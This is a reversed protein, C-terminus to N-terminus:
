IPSLSPFINPVEVPPTLYTNINSEQALTGTATGKTQNYIEHAIHDKVINQNLLEPNGGNAQWVNEIYGKIIKAKALLSSDIHLLNAVLNDIITINTINRNKHKTCHYKDYSLSIIRSNM